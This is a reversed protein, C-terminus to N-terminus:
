AEANADADIAAQAIKIWFSRQNPTMDEWNALHSRLSDHACVPDLMDYINQRWANYAAKGANAMAVGDM